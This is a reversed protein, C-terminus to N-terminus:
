NATLSISMAFTRETGPPLVAMHRNRTPRAQTNGDIFFGHLAARRHAMAPARRHPPMTIFKKMGDITGLVNTIGQYGEPPTGPDQPHCAIRVKNENAVPVVRKLFYDIREWFADANVVGARTLPPNKALAEKANWKEYMASSTVGELASM